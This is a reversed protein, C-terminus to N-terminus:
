SELRQQELHLFYEFTQLRIKMSQHPKNQDIDHFLFHPAGATDMVNDIYSYTPADHGCKFSSLDVAALNPHRAVVRAAWVKHNTNRNFNKEWVDAVALGRGTSGNNFLPDLFDPDTPLSEICLVPFGRRQLEDLLGHNLGPDHHYPHGLAVIGIRDNRVLWDILRRGEARLRGLYREQAAYAEDVAWDSEDRTVALVDGFYEFLQGAAERPRDMRVFPKLFTVGREAFLDRQRTFAAHVVEPTGMQIVCANHGLADEVPSTLHTVIPVCIHSIREDDLLARVHAPAVKAPFCPDISGYKNGREWMHRDTPDSYVVDGVGLARLYANFFPAYYFLNLLRPMGVVMSGRMARAGPASRAMHRPAPGPPYPAFAERAATDVLNPHADRTARARRESERMLRVDDFRGKDCGNGSIHRITRGSALRIDVFTRPCRNRCFTCRTSADSRATFAVAAADDLGVFRTRGPRITRSAEVAAGVAGCIDAYRHVHVTAQPVKRRIFDVQAKVAALNRQTGGQLVFRSGYKGINSEQVVYNWINLPLVLALGAMIEDESWGLRQFNVKDQEMFVACGYNFAPARRARFAREAYDDIAVGFQEAMSQLFYGNGASCQTNLRFDAVRGGKMVLVKIDQGGVDCVVDVEGHYFTAARMHAVTEVVHCDLSFAESLIDSAYGTVATGLLEVDLGRERTWGLMRACLARVDAIPNGRSLMYDRYLLEGEDDVLALKTSTSGGDIGLWGRVTSGPDFDPPEFPAVAFDREFRCREVEDRVLGERVAGYAALREHRGACLHRELPGPGPFTRGAARRGRADLREAERGLLVAGMAGAVEADPPVRVLEDMPLDAPVHGHLDWLERVHVRWLEALVPFFRHPGGLLLVRDRLVHGRVLVELNQKVIANLLSTVIEDTDVGSKLLGVVDTEAFVGCKAAVQHLTRGALGLTSAHEPGVGIKALIRDITAGTGGACKDNMFTLTSRRGEGDDRYIIVKADQGGLEVVSGADPHLRQVAYTVANVEQVYRAALHPALDRGGSGTVFVRLPRGAFRAELERMMELVVEAQRAGHRRYHSHVVRDGADLTVVKATTSGVDLGIDFREDM